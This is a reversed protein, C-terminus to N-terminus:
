KKMKKRQIKHFIRAQHFVGMLTHFEWKTPLARGMLRTFMIKTKEKKHEPYNITELLSEFSDILLRKENGDIRRPPHPLIDSSKKLSFVTYLLLSAAHSLNLSAYSKSTPITILLDCLALEENLLGYDERGFALGVSGKVYRIKEVFEELVLPIRVHKKESNTYVASTGAVLDVKKIADTFSHVIEANDLITSAHVSRIYADEDIPCPNVLILKEVDFNM